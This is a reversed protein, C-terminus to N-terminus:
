EFPNGSVITSSLPLVHSKPLPSHQCFSTDVIQITDLPKQASTRCLIGTSIMNKLLNWVLDHDTRISKVRRRANDKQCPSSTHYWEEADLKGFGLHRNGEVPLCCWFYIANVLIEAMIQM